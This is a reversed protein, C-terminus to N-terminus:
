PYLWIHTSMSDQVLAGGLDSSSSALAFPERIPPPIRPKTFAKMVTQKPGRTIRALLADRLPHAAAKCCATPKGKGGANATAWTHNHMDLAWTGGYVAWLQGYYWDLYERVGVVIQKAAPAIARAAQEAETVEDRTMVGPHEGASPAIPATAEVLLCGQLPCDAPADIAVMGAWAHGFKKGHPGGRPSRAMGTVVVAERYTAAMYDLLERHKCHAGMAQHALMMNAFLAVSTAQGDCDQANCFTIEAPGRDDVVEPEYHGAGRQLVVALLVDNSPKQGRLLITATEVYADWRECLAHVDYRQRYRGSNPIGQRQVGPRAVDAGCVGVLM